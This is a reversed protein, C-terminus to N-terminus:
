SECDAVSGYSASRVLLDLDRGRPPLSGFVLVREGAAEVRAVAIM